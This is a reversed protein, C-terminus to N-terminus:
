GSMARASGAVDRINRASGEYLFFCGAHISPHIMKGDARSRLGTVLRWRVEMNRSLRAAGAEFDAEGSCASLTGTRTRDQRVVSTERPQFRLLLMMNLTGKYLRIDQHSARRKGICSALKVGPGSSSDGRLPLLSSTWWSAPWCVWERRGSAGQERKHKIFPLVVSPLNRSLDVPCTSGAPLPLARQVMRAIKSQRGSRTTSM